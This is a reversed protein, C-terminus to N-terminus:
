HSNVVLSYRSHVVPLIYSGFDRRIPFFHFLIVIHGHSMARRTRRGAESHLIGFPM